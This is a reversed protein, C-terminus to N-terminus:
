EFLIHPYKQCIIDIDQNLREVFKKHQNSEPNFPKHALKLQINEVTKLIELSSVSFWVSKFKDWIYNIALDNPHIMDENYFRYDRLEDMMIEYAPFYYLKKRPEVVRHVASSLHSKSRSNEIFGDKLHRVPSVTFIISAEKNVSRILSIIALLSEEIEDITM